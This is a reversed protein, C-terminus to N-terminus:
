DTRACYPQWQMQMQMQMQRTTLLYSPLQGFHHSKGHLVLHGPRIQRRGAPCRM